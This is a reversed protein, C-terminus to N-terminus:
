LMYLIVPLIYYLINIKNKSSGNIEHSITTPSQTIEPQNTPQPQITTSNTTSDQNTQTSQTTTQQTTQTTSQTIKTTSSSGDCDDEILGVFMDKFDKKIGKEYLNYYIKNKIMYESLDQGVAQLLFDHRSGYNKYKSINFVRYRFTFLQKSNIIDNDTFCIYNSDPINTGSITLFLYSSFYSFILLSSFIKSLM